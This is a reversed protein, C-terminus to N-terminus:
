TINLLKVEHDDLTEKIEKIDKKIEIINELTQTYGDYLAKSDENLIVNYITSKGISVRKAAYGIYSIELTGANPVSLSFQGDLDTIAGVSNSGILKVNAGIIAEGSEDTVKGTISKNQAYGSLTFLLAAILFILQNLTRM